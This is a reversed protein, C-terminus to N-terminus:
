RLLGQRILPSERVNRQRLTSLSQRKKSGGRSRAIEVSLVGLSALVLPDDHDLAAGAEPAPKSVAAEFRSVIALAGLALWLVTDYEDTALHLETVPTKM